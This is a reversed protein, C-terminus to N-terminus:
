NEIFKEESDKGFTIGHLHIRGNDEGLETIFWHKVSKKTKQHLEDYENIIQLSFTSLTKKELAKNLHHPHDNSILGMEKALQFNFYAVNGHDLNKVRYSVYGNPVFQMWPHDGNLIDFNSYFDTLNKIQPKALGFGKGTYQRM